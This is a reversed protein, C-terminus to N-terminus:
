RSVGREPEEPEANQDPVEETQGSDTSKNQRELIGGLEEEFLQEIDSKIKKYNEIIDSYTVNEVAPIPRYNKEEESIAKHDNQIESHFMKVKIKQDPNDAMIGLEQKHPHSPM